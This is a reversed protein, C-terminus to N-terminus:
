RSLLIAEPAEDIVTKFGLSPKAASSKIRIPLM